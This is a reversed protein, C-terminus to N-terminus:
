ECLPPSEKRRNERFTRTKHRLNSFLIPALKLVIIKRVTNRWTSGGLPPLCNHPSRPPPLVVLTLYCKLMNIWQTLVILSSPFLVSPFFLLFVHWSGLLACLPQEKHSLGHNDYKVELRDERWRKSDLHLSVIPRVARWWNSLLSSPPLGLRVLM